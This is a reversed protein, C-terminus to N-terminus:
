STPDITPRVGPFVRLVADPLHLLPMPIRGRDHPRPREIPAIATVQLLHALVRHQIGVVQSMSNEVWGGLLGFLNGGHGHISCGGLHHLVLEGQAQAGDLLRGPHGALIDGFPQEVMAVHGGREVERLDNGLAQHDFRRLSFRLLHEVIEGSGEEGNESFVGIDDLGGRM